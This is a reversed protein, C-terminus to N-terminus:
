MDSSLVRAQMSTKEWWSYVKGYASLGTLNWIWYIDGHRLCFIALMGEGFRLIWFITIMFVKRDWFEWSSSWDELVQIEASTPSYLNPMLYEPQPTNLTNFVKYHGWSLMLLFNLIFFMVTIYLHSQFLFDYCVRLKLLSNSSLPWSFWKWSYQLAVTYAESSSHPPQQQQM